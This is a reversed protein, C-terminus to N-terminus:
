LRNIQWKWVGKHKMNKDAFMARLATMKENFQELM